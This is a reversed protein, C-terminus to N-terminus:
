GRSSLRERHRYLDAKQALEEASLNRGPEHLERIKEPIAPLEGNAEVHVSGSCAGCLPADLDKAPAERM